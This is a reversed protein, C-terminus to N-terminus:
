HPVLMSQGQEVQICLQKSIVIPTAMRKSGGQCGQMCIASIHM